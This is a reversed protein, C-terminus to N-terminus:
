AAAGATLKSTIALQFFLMKDLDDHLKLRSGRDALESHKVALQERLEVVATKHSFGAAFLM